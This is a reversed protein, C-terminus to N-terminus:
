RVEGFEAVSDNMPSFVAFDYAIGANRLTSSVKSALAMMEAESDGDADVQYNGGAPPDDIIRLVFYGCDQLRVAYTGPNSLLGKAALAESLQAPSGPFNVFGRVTWCPKESM